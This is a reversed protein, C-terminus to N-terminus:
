VFYLQSRCRGHLPPIVCGIALLEASSKGAIESLKPWPAINKVNEVDTADAIRDAFLAVDPASWQTGNMSICIESTREDIIAVFQVTQLGHAVGTKLYGFHYARSAAANAVLNWYPVSRLRRDLLARIANMAEGDHSTGNMVSAHAADVLAPMVQRNFYANTYYKAAKSMGNVIRLRDLDPLEPGFPIDHQGLLATQALVVRYNNELQKPWADAEWQSNATTLAATIIAPNVYGPRNIAEHIDSEVKTALRDANEALLETLAVESPVFPADATEERLVRELGAYDLLKRETQQLSM